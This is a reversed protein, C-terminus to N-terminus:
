PPPVFIQDDGRKRGKEKKKRVCECMGDMGSMSEEDGRTALVERRVYTRLEISKTSPITSMALMKESYNEKGRAGTITGRLM